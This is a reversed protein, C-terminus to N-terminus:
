FTRTELETLTAGLKHIFLNFNAPAVVSFVLILVSLFAAFKGSYLSPPPPPPPLFGLNQFQLIKAYKASDVIWKQIRYEASGM